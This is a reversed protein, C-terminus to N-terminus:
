RAHGVGDKVEATLKIDSLDHNNYAFETVEGNANLRTRPSLFDFGAGQATLTGTFPRLPMSPM